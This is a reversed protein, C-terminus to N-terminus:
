KSLAKSVESYAQQGVRAVSLLDNVFKTGAKIPSDGQLKTYQNELNLRQVLDSLEKNTLSNTSSKRARQGLKAARIADPSAPLNRGGRARVRGGPSTTVTVREATKPRRRVGWKMGKVGFHAMFTDVVDVQQDDSDM